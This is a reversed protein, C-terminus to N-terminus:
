EVELEPPNFFDTVRTKCKSCQRVTKKEDAVLISWLHDCTVYRFTDDLGKIIHKTM